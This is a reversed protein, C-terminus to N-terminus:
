YVRLYNEGDFGASHGANRVVFQSGDFHMRREDRRVFLHSTNGLSATCHMNPTSITASGNTPSTRITCRNNSRTLKAMGDRTQSIRFGNIDFNETGDDLRWYNSAGVVETALSFLYPGIRVDNTFVQTCYDIQIDTQVVDSTTRTGASDVLYILACGDSTLSVGKHWMKAYRIFSNQKMGDYSCIDVREYHQYVKGNPHHLASCMFNNSLAIKVNNKQNIMMVSHDLTMLVIIGERLRLEIIGDDTATPGFNSTFSYSSPRMFHNPGDYSNNNSCHHKQNHYSSAFNNQIQMTPFHSIASGQNEHLTEYVNNSNRPAAVADWIRRNVPLRTPGVHLLPFDEVNEIQSETAIPNPLVFPPASVNFKPKKASTFLSKQRPGADKDTFTQSM